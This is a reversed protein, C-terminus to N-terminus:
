TARTLTRCLDGASPLLLSVNPVDTALKQPLDHGLEFTRLRTVDLTPCPPNPPCPLLPLQRFFYGRQEIMIFCDSLDDPLGQTIRKLTVLNWVPPPLPLAKAM